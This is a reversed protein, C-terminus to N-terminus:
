CYSSTQFDPQFTHSRIQGRHKRFYIFLSCYLMIRKQASVQISSRGATHTIVAESVYAIRWGAKRIRLCLDVDEYYMFFREDMLGVEQMISRRVMLAAGSLQEVDAQKDYDYNDSTLKKYHSRFIGLSRFITRGYLLARFTPVYGVSPCTTGDTDLLKPGCAGIAPNEDLIKILNNLSHLHVITDPNLLLVYKGKAIELAQNNAVAFGRNEGNVVMVVEPFDKKIMGVTGDMSANDVVVIEFESRPHNEEISRLCRVLDEQVNWSVVIISLKMTEKNIRSHRLTPIFVHTLLSRQDQRTLM